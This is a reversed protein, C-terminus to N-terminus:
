AAAAAGSVRETLQKPLVSAPFVAALALILHSVLPLSNVNAM